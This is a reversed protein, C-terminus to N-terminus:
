RNASCGSCSTCEKASPGRTSDVLAPEESKRIVQEIVAEYSISYKRFLLVGAAMGLLFITGMVIIGEALQTSFVETMQFAAAIGTVLGTLPIGILMAANRVPAGKGCRVGVFDGVRAQATNLAEVTLTSGESSCHCLRRNVSEPAGSIGGTAPRIIVEAMGSKLIKSVIGEYHTMNYPGQKLRAVDKTCSQPNIKRLM